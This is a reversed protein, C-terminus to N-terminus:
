IFIYKLRNGASKEFKQRSAYIYVCHLDYNLFENTSHSSLTIGRDGPLGKPGRTSFGVDGMIGKPGNYGYEGPAGKQGPIGPTGPLGDLGPLGDESPEAM